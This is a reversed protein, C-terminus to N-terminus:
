RKNSKGTSHMVSAGQDNQDMQVKKEKKINEVGLPPLMIHLVTDSRLDFSTSIVQHKEDFFSLCVKGPMLFLSFMGNDASITGIGSYKEVINLQRITKGNNTDTVTGTVSVRRIQAGTLQTLMLLIFVVVLSTTKM